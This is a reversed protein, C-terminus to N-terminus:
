RPMPRRSPTTMPAAPVPGPLCALGEAAHEPFAAPDAALHFAEETARTIARHHGHQGPVDLFTPAVADPRFTRITRVLREVTREHGWIAFTEDASKSLGFDVIVGDLDENLWYLDIDLEDAAAEMERTRLVGLVPGRETGIDNQGGEGRVGCAYGVRVGDGLALRALLASTEDDPHAGTQLFSNVSGLPVLAQWMRVLANDARQRALKEQDPTM